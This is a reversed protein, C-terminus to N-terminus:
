LIDIRGQAGDVRIRTGTKLRTTARAVGVVAPIGYERAVVSGHTMMGGVEMVLGGAALFLPTWGPDTAPCVLIEGPELRAGRPDLIVRARGEVVGPSVPSGILMVDDGGAPASASEYIATGDSLLLRPIQNRRKERAYRQRRSRVIERWGGPENAAIKKLDATTLFFIDEAQDIRGQGALRQGEEILAERWVGMVRIAMFKPSERLGVLERIRGAAFAAFRAKFWGRKERRLLAVLRDRAARAQGAGREFAARPSLTDGSIRLYSAIVQMIQTPDERWRPRGLDIEALGRMGYRALFGAIALQAASPLEGRLYAQTLAAPETGAFLAAAAPDAQVQRSVDWLALDMETTVNHPTGRTLELALAEGGPLSSALRILPQLMAQGSIVAPLLYKLLRAPVVRQTDEFAAVREALGTSGRALAEAARVAVEIEMQVRQRGRAPWLLNYVVMGALSFVLRMTKLRTKFGMRSQLLGLRPDSLVALLGEQFVPDINGTFQVLFRRGFPHRAPGTFNIFLREAATFLVQQTAPTVPQNLGRSAAAALMLFIERGLPTIPDLMGQVSGFSFLVKLPGAPDLGEPLPFLSTVPRSQLLNLSGGALAWEIDQPVGYHGAVRQGLRALALITDDGLAQIEHANQAETLVGGASSGRIAVAKAGLTKSLIRGAAPDVVYHDPEVQGSVLAEGLGLTADIVTEARRGTLPNATFLVGSADAPAMVQIIVALSLGAPAVNNRLRYGIARATWLSAWCRRVSDLVAQSGIVNLYTDQQGAFSLDPLDEATASSRVAVPVAEVGAQRSLTKYAAEIEGAVPAPLSCAEFLTRIRASVGELSGPDGDAAAALITAIPGGLDHSSVFVDYAATTVCYGPPVPFGARLLEGLNAAKGGATALSHRDFEPLSLVYEM